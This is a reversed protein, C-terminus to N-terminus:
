GVTSSRRAALLYLFFPGGLLATIVGVPLESPAVLWRAALDAKLVLTAGILFSAPIVLAHRSGFLPRAIHPAILGVFGIVGAAAVAAGTTISAFIIVLWRFADVPLGLSAATEEGMSLADLGRSCLWLGGVGLLIAPCTWAIEFWGRLNFSGMLWSLITILQQQHTLMLISVWAGFFNSVAVGALILSMTGQRHAAAIGGVLAVALTAGVLAAASTAGTGYKATAGTVIAIAAGLAAGSSAGIIYPDALPNRFLGQYGAGAAALGGGIFAGLIVRPLRLKWVVADVTPKADASGILSNWFDVPEISVGGVFLGLAVAWVLAAVLVLWLAVSPLLQRNKM